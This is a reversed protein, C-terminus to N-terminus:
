RIEHPHTYIYIIKFHEIFLQIAFTCIYIYLNQWLSLTCSRLRIHM